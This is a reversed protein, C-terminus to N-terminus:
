QYQRAVSRIPLSLEGKLAQPIDDRSPLNRYNDIGEDLCLNNCTINLLEVAYRVHAIHSLEGQKRFPDFAGDLLVPAGDSKAKRQWNLIFRLTRSGFLGDVTIGTEGPPPAIPDSLEFHVLRFLVQVLQVDALLNRKAAGVSFDINYSNHPGTQSGIVTTVFAM